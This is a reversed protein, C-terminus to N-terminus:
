LRVVPLILTLLGCGRFGGSVNTFMKVMGGGGGGSDGGQSIASTKDYRPKRSAWSGCLAM